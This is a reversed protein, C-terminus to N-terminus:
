HSLVIVVFHHTMFDEDDIRQRGVLTLVKLLSCERGISASGNSTIDTRSLPQISLIPFQIGFESAMRELHAALGQCNCDRRLPNGELIRNGQSRLEVELQPPASNFLIPYARYNEPLRPETVYEQPRITSAFELEEWDCM